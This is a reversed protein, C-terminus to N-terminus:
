SKKYLYGPRTYIRHKNRVITVQYATRLPKDLEVRVLNELHCTEEEELRLLGLDGKPNDAFGSYNFGMSYNYLHGLEHILNIAADAIVGKETNLKEPDKDDWYGTTGVAHSGKTDGSSQEVFFIDKEDSQLTQIIMRATKSAWLSKLAKKVNLVFADTGKYVVGNGDNLSTSTYLEGDYFIIFTGDSAKIRFREKIPKSVGTKTTNDIGLHSKDRMMAAENAWYERMNM